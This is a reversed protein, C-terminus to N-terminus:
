AKLKKVEALSLGTAEAIVQAKIGNVKLVRAMELERQRRAKESERREAERGAKLGAERGKAVGVKLGVKKGKEVGLKLGITKAEQLLREQEKYPLVYRKSKAIEALAGADTFSLYGKETIILHDLVPVDLFLGAQLLRDTLDIDAESPQLNGSPHNHVLIIAVSRKQLAVSFVEMPEVVTQKVSGMSILEINLVTNNSSLSIVWFHERDRDIKNERLLVRQMVAYLDQSNLIRIEKPKLKVNM